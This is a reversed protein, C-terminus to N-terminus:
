SVRKLGEHVIVLEEIGIENAQANFNPGTLKSPWANVFDWRGIEGMKQDYMVISGNMRAKDVNGEEVDQRWDWIDINTTVGRKLTIDGWKMRGPVKKVVFEGKAGSEKSEVVEHESGMGSVERFSGKIVNDLQLYFSFGGAPDVGNAM